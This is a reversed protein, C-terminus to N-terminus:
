YSDRIREERYAQSTILDKIIAELSKARCQRTIFSIVRFCSIKGIIQQSKKLNGVIPSIYFNELLNLVQISYFRKLGFLHLLNDYYIQSYGM